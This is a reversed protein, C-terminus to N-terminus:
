LNGFSCEVQWCANLYKSGSIMWRYVEWGKHCLIGMWSNIIKIDLPWNQYFQNKNKQDNKRHVPNPRGIWSAFFVLSNVAFQCFIICFNHKFYNFYQGTHCPLVATFFSDLGFNRNNVVKIISSSGIVQSSTLNTALFVRFSGEEGRPDHKLIIKAM